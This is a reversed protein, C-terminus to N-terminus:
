EDGAKEVRKKAPRIIIQNKEQNFELHLVQSGTIGMVKRLWSPLLVVGNEYIKTEVQMM